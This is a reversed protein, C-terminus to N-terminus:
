RRRGKLFVQINGPRDNEFYLRVRGDDTEDVVAPISSSTLFWGEPLVVANRPRGFGRDWVLEDGALVYRNPDTYTEWIRLRASGGDRIPDFWIVVVETSDDVQDAPLIEREAIAHGRLTEVVLQEGTDLISASPDSARSGPRVINLYRDMGPRTETYDHYLRFSHSEPQQLFYTIDRDQFARESFRYEARAAATSPGGDAGAAERTRRLEAAMASDRAPEVNSALADAAAAALPRARVEYDVAGPGRGMFSVRLRGDDEVDVQSPYNARVLEYGPPLVVSNRRIGLSRSFVVDEGDVFYSAADVYTKDIRVRGQGDEAVPRALLVEIYHSEDRANGLGSERAEMGNVVRWPLPAGTALDTVGHVEEEAGERIGNFYRTAGATTASVDYITRFAGSGPAQLEYRTYSDAQTQRWQQPSAALPSTSLVAIAAGVLAAGRTRFGSKGPEIRRVGIRM